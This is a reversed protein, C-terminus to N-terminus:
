KYLTVELQPKLEMRVTAKAFVLIIHTNIVADLIDRTMIIQKMRVVNFFPLCGHRHTLTSLHPAKSFEVYTVLMIISSNLIYMSVLPPFVEHSFLFLSLCLMLICLMTLSPRVTM